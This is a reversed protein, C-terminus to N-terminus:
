RGGTGGWERRPVCDTSGEEDEEARRARGVSRVRTDHRQPLARTHCDVLVVGAYLTDEPPEPVGAGVDGVRKVLQHPSPPRLLWLRVVAPLHAGLAQLLHTLHPQYATASPSPPPTLSCPQQADASSHPVATDGHEMVALVAAPLIYRSVEAWAAHRVNGGM